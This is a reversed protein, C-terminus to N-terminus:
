SEAKAERMSKEQSIIGRSIFRYNRMTALGKRACMVNLLRDKLSKSLTRLSAKSRRERDRM